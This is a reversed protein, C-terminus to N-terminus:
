RYPWGAHRRRGRRPPDSRAACSFGPSVSPGTRIQPRRRLRWSTFAVVGASPGRSRTDSMVGPDTAAGIWLDIHPTGTSAWREACTECLDEMVFYRRLPAYYVLTGVALVDTTSALTIPDEFTGTGDAVPHRANPFAITTSGPPDNDYATYFTVLTTLGHESAAPSLLGPSCASGALFASCAVAIGARLRLLGRATV